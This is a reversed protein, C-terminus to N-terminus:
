QMQYQIILAEPAKHGDKNDFQRRLFSYRTGITAMKALYYHTSYVIGIRLNLM